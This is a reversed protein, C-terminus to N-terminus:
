CQTSKFVAIAWAVGNHFGVDVTNLVACPLTRIKEEHQHYFILTSRYKLTPNGLIERVQMETQGLQLAIPLEVGGANEPIIRCRRDAKSNAPVRELKFGDIWRLGAIEGSDLSLAWEGNADTGYFCLSANAASADGSGVITGGLRKQVETLETKELVIQVNAVRLTTIMEKPITAPPLTDPYELTPRQGEPLGSPRSNHAVQLFTACTVAFFVTRRVRGTM